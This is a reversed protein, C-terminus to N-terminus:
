MDPNEPAEPLTLGHDLPVRPASLLVPPQSLYSTSTIFSCHDSKVIKPSNPNLAANLKRTTILLPPKVINKKLYHKSSAGLDKEKEKDKDKQSTSPDSKSTKTPPSGSSNSNYIKSAKRYLSDQSTKKELSSISSNSTSNARISSSSQWKSKLSNEEGLTLTKGKFTTNDVSLYTLKSKANPIPSQVELKDHIKTVKKRKFQLHTPTLTNSM